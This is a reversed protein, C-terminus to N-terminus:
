SPRPGGREWYLFDPDPVSDSADEDELSEEDPLSVLSSLLISRGIPAPSLFDIIREGDEEDLSELSELSEEEDPDV